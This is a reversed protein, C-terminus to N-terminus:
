VDTSTGDRDRGRAAEAGQGPRSQLPCTLWGHLPFSCVVFSEPPVWETADDPLLTLRSYGKGKTGKGKLAKVHAKGIEESGSVGSGVRTCVAGM